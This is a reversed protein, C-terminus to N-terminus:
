NLAAQKPALEDSTTPRESAPPAKALAMKLRKADDPSAGSLIANLAKSNAKLLPPGGGFPM